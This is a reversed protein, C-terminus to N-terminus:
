AENMRRMYCWPHMATQGRLPPVEVIEGCDPCIPRPKPKPKRNWMDAV